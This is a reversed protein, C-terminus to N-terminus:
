ARVPLLSGDELVYFHRNATAIGYGRGAHEFEFIWRPSAEQRFFPRVARPM